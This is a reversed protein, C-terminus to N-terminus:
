TLPSPQKADEEPGTQSELGLHKALRVLKIVRLVAPQPNRVTFDWAESRARQATSILLHIGTSDIFSLESLDLVTDRNGALREKLQAANSLDLEGCPAIVRRGDATSEFIHFPEPLASLHTPEQDRPESGPTGDAPQGTRALPDSPEPSTDRAPHHRGHTEM